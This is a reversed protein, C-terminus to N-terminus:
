SFFPLLGKRTRKDHEEESLWQFWEMSQVVAATKGITRSTNDNSWMFFAKPSVLCYEYMSKFMNDILFDGKNGSPSAITPFGLNFCFKQIAWLIEVQRKENDRTMVHIAKGFQNAEAWPCDGTLNDKRHAELLTGVLEEVSPLVPKMNKCWKALANGLIKGSSFQKLLTAHNHILASPTSLMSVDAISKSSTCVQKIPNKEIPRNDEIDSLQEDDIENKRTKVMEKILKYWPKKKTEYQYKDGDRSLEMEINDYKTCAMSREIIDDDIEEGTAAAVARCGRFKKTAFLGVAMVLGLAVLAVGIGLMSPDQQGGSNASNGSEGAIASFENANSTGGGSMTSSTFGPNSKGINNYIVVPARTPSAWELTSISSPQDTTIPSATSPLQASLTSQPLYSM